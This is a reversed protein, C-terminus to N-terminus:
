GRELRKGERYDPYIAPAVSIRYTRFSDVNARSLHSYWFCAFLAFLVFKRLYSKYVLMNNTSNRNSLIANIQANQAIQM